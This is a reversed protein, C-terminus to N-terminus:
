EFDDLSFGRHDHGYDTVSESLADHRMVVPDQVWELQNRMLIRTIRQLHVFWETWRILKTNYRLYGELALQQLRNNDAPLGASLVNQVNGKEDVYSLNRLIRTSGARM